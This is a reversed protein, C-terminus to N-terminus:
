YLNTKVEAISGKGTVIARGRLAPLPCPFSHL